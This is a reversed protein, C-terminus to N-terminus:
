STHCSSLVKHRCVSVVSVSLFLPRSIPLSLPPTRVLYVVVEADNDKFDTECEIPLPTPMLQAMDGQAVHTYEPNARYNYRDYNVARVTRGEFMLVLVLRILARNSM